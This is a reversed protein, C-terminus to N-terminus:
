DREEELLLPVETDSFLGQNEANAASSLLSFCIACLYAPSAWRRASNRPHQKAM